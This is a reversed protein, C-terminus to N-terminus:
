NWQAGRLSTFSFLKPKRVIRLLQATARCTPCPQSNRCNPCGIEVASRKLRILLSALKLSAM